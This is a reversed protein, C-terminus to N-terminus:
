KEQKLKNRTWTEIEHVLIQPALSALLLSETPLPKESSSLSPIELLPKMSSVKASKSGQLVIEPSITQSAESSRFFHHTCFSM